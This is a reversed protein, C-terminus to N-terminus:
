TRHHFGLLLDLTPQLDEFFDSGQETVSSEIEPYPNSIFINDIWSARMKTDIHTPYPIEISVFPQTALGIKKASQEFQTLFYDPSRNMDGLLIMINEDNYEQMVKDAFEVRAPPSNIPGGPVHSQIFCYKLGTEKELLLLKVITNESFSYKSIEYDLVDFVRTDLVFVDQVNQVDADQPLLKMYDPLRSALERFLTDGVEQLAIVSRPYIPHNVMELIDDIIMEERVALPSNESIPVNASMILSDKLGQENKEIWGLYKTNLINWIAFHIHDVSAGVPLHDSPFQWAKGLEGVFYSKTSTEESSYLPAAIQFLSILLIFLIKYM